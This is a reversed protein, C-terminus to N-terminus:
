RCDIIKSKKRDQLSTFEHRQLSYLEHGGKLIFREGNAQENVLEGQLCYVIHGKQCWHDALYGASYEVMRIRLGPYDITQSYSRGTEGSNETKAIRNWDIIQFSIKKM